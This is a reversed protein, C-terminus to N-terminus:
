RKGAADEEYFKDLLQHRNIFDQYRRAIILEIGDWATLFSARESKHFEQCALMETQQRELEAVTLRMERLLLQSNGTWADRDVRCQALTPTQAAAPSMVVLLFAISLLIKM